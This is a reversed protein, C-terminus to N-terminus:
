GPLWEDRFPADVDRDFAAYAERPASTEQEVGAGYRQALESEPYVVSKTPRAGVGILTCPGDGAGVFIHETWPPCHVFDWAKLRREEGEILLLCEGGLVLFGEQTDERHYMSSPQGPQLVSLNIGFQDFRRDEAEFSTYAGFAGTQWRADRVNLVFWGEGAPALGNGSPELPAEPVM